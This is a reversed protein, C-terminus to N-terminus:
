KGVTFQPKHDSSIYPEFLNKVNNSPIYLSARAKVTGRGAIIDEPVLEIKLVHDYGQSWNYLFLAGQLKGNEFRELGWYPTCGDQEAAALFSNVDTTLTEQEGYEHKVFRVDMAVNGYIDSPNLFLNAISEVPHNADWVPSMLTDVNFYLNRNIARRQYSSGQLMELSDGYAQLNHSEIVPSKPKQGRAKKVSSIFRNEIDARSGGKALDYSVPVVVKFAVDDTLWSIQLEKGDRNSISCPLDPSLKRLDDIKGTTIKVNEYGDLAIDRAKVALAAEIYNLMEADADNKMQDSFLDLGIHKPDGAKKVVRINFGDVTLITDCDAPLDAIPSPSVRALEKNASDTQEFTRGFCFLGSLLFTTVILYKIM